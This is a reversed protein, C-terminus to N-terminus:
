WSPFELLNPISSSINKYLLDKKKDTSIILINKKLHKEIYNIVLAKEADDINDILIPSRNKIKDILVQFSLSKIHEIM